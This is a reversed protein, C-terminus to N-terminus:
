NYSIALLYLFSLALGIVFITTCGTNENQKSHDERRTARLEDVLLVVDEQLELRQHRENTGWRILVFIIIVLIFILAEM